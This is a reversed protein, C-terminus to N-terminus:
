RRDGWRGLMGHGSRPSRTHARRFEEFHEHFATGDHDHHRASHQAYCADVELVFDGGEDAVMLGLQQPEGRKRQGITLHETAGPCESRLTLSGRGDFAAPRDVVHHAQDILDAFREGVPKPVTPLALPSGLGSSARAATFRTLRMRLRRTQRSLPLWGSPLSTRGHTIM